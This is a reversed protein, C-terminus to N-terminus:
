DELKNAIELLEDFRQMDIECEQGRFLMKFSIDKTNKRNVIIEFGENFEMGGGIEEIKQFGKVKKGDVERILVEKLFAAINFDHTANVFEVNSGSKFEKSMKVYHDILKAMNAATEVPSHTEPDPRKDGYSVYYDMQENTLQRLRKDIEDKPLDKYNEGLIDKKIKMVDKLFQGNGDYMFLLGKKNRLTGKKETPSGEAIFRSTDRTRKTNSSYLKIFDRKERLKGNEFSQERGELTLDTDPDDPDNRKEGHRVIDIYLTINEGYEAVNEKGLEMIEQRM